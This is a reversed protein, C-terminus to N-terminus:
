MASGSQSSAYDGGRWVQRIIRSCYDRHISLFTANYKQVYKKKDSRYRGTVEANFRANIWSPRRNLAVVPHDEYEPLYGLGLHM